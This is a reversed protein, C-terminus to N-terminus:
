QGKNRFSAQSHASTVDSVWRLGLAKVHNSGVPFYITRSSLNRALQKNCSKSIKRAVATIVPLVQTTCHQLLLVLWRAPIKSWQLGALPGAISFLVINTSVCHSNWGSLCKSWNLSSNKWLATWTALDWLVIMGNGIGVIHFFFSSFFMIQAFLVFPLKGLRMVCNFHYNAEKEVCGGNHM